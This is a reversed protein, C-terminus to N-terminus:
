RCFIWATELWNRRVLMINVPNFAQQKSLDIISKMDELNNDTAELNNLILENM